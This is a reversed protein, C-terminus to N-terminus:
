LKWFKYIGHLSFHFCKTEIYLCEGSPFCHMHIFISKLIPKLSVVVCFGEVFTPISMPAPETVDRGQQKGQKNLTPRLCSSPHMM